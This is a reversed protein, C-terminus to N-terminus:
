LGPIAKYSVKSALERRMILTGLKCLTVTVQFKHFNRRTQPHGSRTLFHHNCHVSFRYTVRPGAPQKMLIHMYIKSEVRLDVREAVRSERTM